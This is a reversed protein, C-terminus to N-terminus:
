GDAREVVATEGDPNTSTWVGDDGVQETNCREGGTEGEEVYEADVTYCYENPTKQDWTGTEVVEGNQTSVYTGDPLLEEEFVEGESSTVRYKGAPPQGDAAMSPAPAEAVVDDAVVDVEEEAAPSCSALIAASAVFILKKM